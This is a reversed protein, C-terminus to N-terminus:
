GCSARTAATSSGSATSPPPWRSRPGAHDGNVVMTNFFAEPNWIPSIDSPPQPHVPDAAAAARGGRFVRPDGPLLAIRRCQLVPGPDRDPDRPDHEQDCGTCTSTSSPKVRWRLPGRCSAGGRRRRRIAGGRILWFGAPGAYVNSRTMGLTHDHYWLTTAPQDNRYRFDAYGLNGPNTGTADDFLRGKRAYSAPINVAAPLFWAEPYGDSHGEVHSGHVHTIIPVPGTYREPIFGRCDTSSRETSASGPRTRGTCPRTSRSCTPSSGGPKQTWWTTSGDSTSRRIRPRRSRTPRITSSPNAPSGAGGRAHPGGGPRLEVRDDAPAYGIRGNLTNWIGGPLIQQQFQRVAIDYNNPAGNNKMVPPIVLPTVYKPIAAGDLICVGPQVEVQGPPCAAFVTGTGVMALIMLTLGMGVPKMVM